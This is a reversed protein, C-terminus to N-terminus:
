FTIELSYDEGSLAESLNHYDFSIVGDIIEFDLYKMRETVSKVGDAFGHNYQNRDYQLAKLLEDKDVNIGYSEVVEYVNNEITTRLGTSIVDIPSKYM